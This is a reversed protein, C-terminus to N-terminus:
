AAEAKTPWRQEIMEKIATAMNTHRAACDIKVRTHLSIPVDVTIRKLPETPADHPKQRVFEDDTPVPRPRAVTVKKAM